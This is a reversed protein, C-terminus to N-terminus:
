PTPGSSAENAVPLHAEQRERERAKQTLEVWLHIQRECFEVDSLKDAYGPHEFVGDDTAVIPLYNPDFLMVLGGPRKKGDAKVEKTWHYSGYSACETAGRITKYLSVTNNGGQVDYVARDYDRWEFGEDRGAYYGGKRHLVIFRPGGFELTINQPPINKLDPM